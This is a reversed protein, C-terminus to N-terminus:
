RWIYTQITKPIRYVSGDGRKWLQMIITVYHCIVCIRAKWPLNVRERKRKRNEYFLQYKWPKEGKFHVFERATKIDMTVNQTTKLIRYVSGDRKRLQMIIM